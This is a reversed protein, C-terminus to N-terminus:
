KDKGGWKRESNIKFKSQVMVNLIANIDGSEAGESNKGSATYHEYQQYYIIGDVKRM